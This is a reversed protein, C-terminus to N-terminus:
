KAAKLMFRRYTSTTAYKEYIEPHEARLRKTDVRSQTVTKWVVRPVGGILGVEHEGLLAKLKNEAAQRREAAATEEAKAAEYEAILEEAEPPLNICSDPQATPYLRALLETAAASGDMPPPTNEEVLRWFDREIKILYGILEDDREIRQYHFKNGGILVAIYAYGYGTVALYHQVQIMYEDPIKGGAWEDKRYESTTKCELIGNGHEKDVIIRDVNAIMFPYEPHALIANRRRIKFGTRQAFEEAVIDELKAGWYAAEGPEEPEVQGTKELWVAVPSRWRNLGAIAAADSGGIGRRRLELWEERPMNVTNALVVAGM